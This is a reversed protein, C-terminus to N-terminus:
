TTRYTKVAEIVNFYQSNVFVHSVKVIFWRGLLVKSLKNDVIQSSSAIDFFRGSRRHTSGVCRFVITDGGSVILDLLMSNRPQKQYNVSAATSYIKPRLTDSDIFKEFDISPEIAANALQEFPKVYLDRYSKFINQLNNDAMGIIHNKDASATTKFVSNTIKRTFENGCIPSIKYDRIDCMVNFGPGVQQITSQTGGQGDGVIFTELVYNRPDTNQLEFYKSLSMYTFTKLYRDFNLICPDQAYESMHYSSIYMMDLFANSNAQSHFMLKAFGNDFKSEDIVNDGFVQKLLHKLLLGTEISRQSNNLDAVNGALRGLKKLADISSTQSANELMLQQHADRFNMVNITREGSEDTDQFENISFVSNLNFIKRFEENQMDSFMDQKTISPMIDVALIDHNNGAFDLVPGDKTASSQLVSNANNVIISGVSFPIFISEEITLNEISSSNLPIYNGYADYLGVNFLYPTNNNFVEVNYQTQDTM